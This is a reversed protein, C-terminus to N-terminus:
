AEPRMKIYGCPCETACLGCGKCFDYDFVYFSGDTAMEATKIVASDPCLTWCNDCALCNGCSFCRMAEAMAQPSNLGGEIETFDDRREPPVKGVPTRKAHEFYDLNLQDYTAIPRDDPLPGEAGRLYHDIAAAALRGDGIAAAVTGRDGRMDGGVFINQQDKLRGYKDKARLYNGGSLLDELGEPDVAEGICPVVMDVNIVRETGEFSVRAKRGAKDPIKKLAVIEVGVVRSGRMILRQINTHPHIVVGEELAEELERPVVNLVDDPATDPGPLGSATILHVDAAGHRKLVRCIDVATNGGGHVVVTKAEPVSGHDVWEKLMHLGGHLDAPVAGGISWEKSQQCGVALFVANYEAELERLSMDRGLKHRLRVEIDHSLLREVEADLVDRPLRTMPIASRLLGGADTLAEFLTVKYGRRLLHYSASLGGPGAGVVAVRPVDGIPLREIPYAWGNRIAEDGLYRELTHIAISEDYQGRNCATECPHPCVRGTVAPLPNKDVLEEWADRVRNEQMKALWAQQDEGAPCANHCPAKSHLHFPQETRWTGTKFALSTGPL